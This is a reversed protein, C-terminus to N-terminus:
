FVRLLVPKFLGSPLRLFVALREKSTIPFRHNNGKAIDTAILDHVFDFENRRLRCYERLDKHDYYEYFLRFRDSATKLHVPRVYSSRRPLDAEEELMLAILLRLKAIRKRKKQVARLMAVVCLRMEFIDFM